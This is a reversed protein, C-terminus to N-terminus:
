FQSSGVLILTCISIIGDHGNVEIHKRFYQPTDLAHQNGHGRSRLVCRSWTQEDATSGLVTNMSIKSGFLPEPLVICHVGNVLVTAATGNVEGVRFVISMSQM